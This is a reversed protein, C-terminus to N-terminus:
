TMRMSRKCFWLMSVVEYLKSNTPGQRHFRQEHCILKNRLPQPSLQRVFIRIKMGQNGGVAMIDQSSQTSKNETNLNNIMVLKLVFKLVKGQGKPWSSTTM